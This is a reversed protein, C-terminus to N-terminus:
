NESLHENVNRKATIVIIFYRFRTMYPSEDKCLVKSVVANHPDRRILIWRMRNFTFEAGEKVFSLRVRM